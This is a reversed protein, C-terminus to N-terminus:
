SNEDHWELVVIQTPRSRATLHKRLLDPSHTLGGVSGGCAELKAGRGRRRYGAVHCGSLGNRVAHGVGRNGSIDPPM